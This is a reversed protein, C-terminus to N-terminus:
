RHDLPRQIIASVTQRLRQAEPGSIVPASDDGYLRKEITTRQTEFDESSANMLRVDRYTHGILVHRRRVGEEVWGLFQYLRWARENDALVWGRLRAMGLADFCMRHLLYCAELIRVSGGGVSASFLRGWEASTAQSDFDFVSSCGLPTGDISDFFLLLDGQDLARHFWGLHEDVTLPQPQNLWKATEPQNRWQVILDADQEETLRILAHRGRLLEVRGVAM